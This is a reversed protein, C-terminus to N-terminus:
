IIVECESYIHGNILIILKSDLIFNLNKNPKRTTAKASSLISPYSVLARTRWMLLSLKSKVLSGSMTPSMGWSMMWSISGLEMLVTLGSSALEVLSLIMYSLAVFPLFSAGLAVVLPEPFSDARAAM